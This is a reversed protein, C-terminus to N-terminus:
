FRGFAMRVLAAPAVSPPEPTVGPRVRPLRVRLAGPCIRCRLPTQMMVSEGDIGVPILDTDAEVVVHRAALQRIGRSRAGSILQAAHLASEVTVAIVGLEGGDLRVRRGLGALDKFVYRNNSVLLATLGDITVDDIHAVLRPGSHRSLLDPLLDLTTGRKDDRYAPNQVVEAYAGFSANNVFTRGNIEGLDIRVEVGDTLAALGAAPDDRDLGLDMAFHNRTGASLVLFPLGREAAVAAVLAQTGDGGAVGLLDAGRALADCALAVVDQHEPGGLLAVEAGLDTAKTALDFRTVKGGGSRPNMILYPQHAAPTVAEHPVTSGAPSDAEARSRAAARASWVSVAALLAVAVVAWLVNRYAYIGIVALPAGIAVAGGVWRGPGRHSLFWWVGALMAAIAGVATLAVVLSRVNGVLLLVVAALATALATRALWRSSAPAQPHVDSGNMPATM